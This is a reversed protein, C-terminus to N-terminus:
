FGEFSKTNGKLLYPHTNSELNNSTFIIYNFVNNSRVNELLHKHNQSGNIGILEVLINLMM